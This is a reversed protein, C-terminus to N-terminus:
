IAEDVSSFHVSFVGTTINRFLVHDVKILAEEKCIKKEMKLLLDSSQM